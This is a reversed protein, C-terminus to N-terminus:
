TWGATAARRRLETRAAAGSCRAPLAPSSPSTWGPRGTTSLACTSRWRSTGASTAAGASRGCDRSVPSSPSGARPAPTTPPSRVPCRLAPGVLSMTGGLLNLLQPLEDISYTRLLRGVRTVRPDHRLKFLPGDAENGPAVTALRAEADVVMSRFKVMRFERGDLGVRTQRFFVPGGDACDALAVVLFVPAALVLLVLALLVNVTAKTVGGPGSLAPATVPTHRAAPHRRAGRAPARELM